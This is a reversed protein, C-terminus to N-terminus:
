SSHDAVIVWEGNIKKWLLTFYGGPTDKERILKWAGTVHAAKKGLGEVKLITFELKGMAAKDPYGRQYNALTQNWGNTIGSKGNFRM